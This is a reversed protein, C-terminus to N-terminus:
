QGAHVARGQLIKMQVFREQDHRFGQHILSLGALLTMRNVQAFAEPCGTKKM